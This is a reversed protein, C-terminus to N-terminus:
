LNQEMFLFYDEMQFDIEPCNYFDCFSFAPRFIRDMSLCKKQVYLASTQLASSSNTVFICLFINNATHAGMAVEIGDDM